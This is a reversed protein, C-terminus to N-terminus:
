LNHCIDTSGDQGAFHARWAADGRDVIRPHSEAREQQPM